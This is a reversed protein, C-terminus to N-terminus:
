LHPTATETRLQVGFDLGQCLVVLRELQGLFNKQNGFLAQSGSFFSNLSWIFPILLIM